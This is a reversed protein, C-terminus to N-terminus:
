KYLFYISVVVVKTTGEFTVTVTTAGTVTIQFTMVRFDDGPNKAVITVDEGPSLEESNPSGLL